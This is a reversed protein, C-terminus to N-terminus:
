QQELHSQRMTGDMIPEWKCDPNVPEFVASILQLDYAEIFKVTNFLPKYPEDVRVFPAAAIAALAERRTVPESM